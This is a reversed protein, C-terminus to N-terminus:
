RYSKKMKCVMERPLEPLLSQGLETNTTAREVAYRTTSPPSLSLPVRKREGRLHKEDQRLNYWLTTFPSVGRSTELLIRAHDRSPHAHILATLSPSM